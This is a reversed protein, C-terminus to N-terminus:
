QDERTVRVIVPGLSEDDLQRHSGDCYPFKKSKWCRCLAITEHSQIEVTSRPPHREDNM